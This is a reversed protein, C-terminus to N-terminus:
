LAADEKVNNSASSKLQKIRKLAADMMIEVPAKMGTWIRFSAAGQHILMSLGDIVKAGALRAERLLRTELPEYVFDFVVLDKRLYDRKVPTDDSNPKMGVSTANILIDADELEKKLYEDTLPAAKIRLENGLVRRLVNKLDKARDFTRNLIVLESAIEALTFSVARSSGGAGLIVVKKGSPDADASKLANLAGVGDTTYGILRGDSNLITNVSGVRSATEDLGDLYKIVAIKHPMTVNLGHMNLARIGSVADKLRDARVNFALYIYDLGLHKFAANQIVPSLSHEVPDGILACIRTKGSLNM